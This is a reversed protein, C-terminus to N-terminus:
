RLTQTHTCHDPTWIRQFPGVDVEVERSSGDGLVSGRSTNGYYGAQGRQEAASQDSWVDGHRSLDCQPPQDKRYTKVLRGCKLGHPRRGTGSQSDTIHTTKLHAPDLVFDQCRVSGSHLVDDQGFAVVFVHLLKRGVDSGVQVEDQHLVQVLHQIRGEVSAKRSCSTWVCM